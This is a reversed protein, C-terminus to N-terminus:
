NYGRGKCVCVCVCVCARMRVFPLTNLLVTITKPFPILSGFEFGPCSQKWKVERKHEQSLCSDMEERKGYRGDTLNYEKVM